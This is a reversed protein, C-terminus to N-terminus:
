EAKNLRGNVRVLGSGTERVPNLKKYKIDEFDINLQASRYIEIETNASSFVRYGHLGMLSFCVFFSTEFVSFFLVCGVRDDPTRRVDDCNRGKQSFCFFVFASLRSL